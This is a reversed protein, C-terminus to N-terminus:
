GTAPRSGSLHDRAKATLERLGSKDKGVLELRVLTAETVRQVTQVPLGLRAAIVNLRAPGGALIGLYAQETADLGLTDLQDLECATELHKPTITTFGEARCVRRCSQLLRLALRPTGKARQAILPLAAEHVDWGLARSRHLVVKALEPVSLYNLRLILRLRHRLPELLDYEETTSLILTFDGLKIPQPSQGGVNVYVTKRDLALLLSSQVPVSLTHAEDLHIVAKESASLLLHNLDAVSTLSQGIAEKFDAAMETAIVSAYSSKGLGPGGLLLTSPFAAGETQAYDLAVQISRKVPENGILHALSSPVADNIDSNM